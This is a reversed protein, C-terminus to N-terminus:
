NCRLAVLPDVTTARRAPLYCSLLAVLGLFVAAASFVLPDNASVGVLMGAVLPTVLLAGALGAVMGVGTMWMGQRVILRLVDHRNAGLAMRIGIENTRQSVAYAMVSYLGVATLLLSISGLVGLLTAAVKQQYFSISLREQLPIVEAMGAGPHVMGAERRVGNVLDQPRMSTRMFFAIWFEGGSTQQFPTYFFPTATETVRSYKVDKALGIITRWKGWLEVKRGVPNSGAFYRRAFTENVIVVLPASAHDRSTFDRGEILPIGFVEFYGPDVASHPTRLSEGPAAVYGEIRVESHPLAGFDLPIVNSYSVRSIAPLSELREKLIRSFQKREEPTRCFTDVHIQAFLINDADFGPHMSRANFFSRAFLGTGALAVLALAVQAMVLLGRTRHALAGSTSGRSGERLSEIVNARLCHLAPMLGTLLTAVGCLMIVFIILNGSVEIGTAFPLHLRPLLWELSQGVWLALVIAGMSGLLALPLSEALLQRILRGAGAGLALRVGFERQRAVARALQLNAINAAAILFVVMCVAMLVRLPNALLSHAGFHGDRLPLLTASFGANTKPHAAAIRGALAAVEQRAQAVTVGPRLRGTVWMQRDSRGNLLWDGQGNLQPGMVVPIWVDMGLGPVTGRFEPRTVGVITLEYRNVRVTKGIVAPDGNFEKRWLRHSIVAIPFAGAGDGYEEPLFVRGRAPEVGLVAFYNGSVYEGWVRQPQEDSGVNFANMLSAAIGSVSRLHERYDRYDAYATTMYVNGPAVTEISVLQGSDPVGSVPRVLLADIWGFVTANAGIGLALTLVAVLSAAPSASMARVGYRLDSLFATFIRV